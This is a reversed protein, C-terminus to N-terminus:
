GALLVGGLAVGAVTLTSLVGLLLPRPGIGLLSKVRVGLGLAFMAAALLATQVVKAAGLVPAPVIGTSAVLMMVVFGVAFLPVVSPRAGGGATGLEPSRRALMGVGAIVPALMLVRALKVIVALNVAGAGIAGGAAVVQAVEHISAGAWLASRETGLHVAGAALPVALIMVSGFLVVLAVAAAVEEEDTDMAGDVAAVAAAGCISFGAAILLTQTLRMGLLRGYAVTAVMGVAVVAVVVGLMPTGLSAIQGLSLQLGLLVIGVRLVRKATFTIGPQWSGPLAIVNTLVAGLVIAALLASVPPLFRNVAMAVLMGVACVGIGPLKASAHGSRPATTQAPTTEPM